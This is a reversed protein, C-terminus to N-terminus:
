RCPAAIAPGAGAIRAAAFAAFRQTSGEEWTLLERQVRPQGRLAILGSAQIANATATAGTCHTRAGLLDTGVRAMMSSESDEDLRKKFLV